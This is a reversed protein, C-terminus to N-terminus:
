EGTSRRKSTRVSSTDKDGHGVDVAIREVADALRRVEAHLQDLRALVLSSGDTQGAKGIGSPPASGTLVARLYDDPWGLAQSIAALTRTSRKRTATAYQLERLTAVSVKSREALEQQTMPLETMRSNMASAVAQWDEM